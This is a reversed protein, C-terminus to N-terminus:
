CSAPWSKKATTINKNKLMYHIHYTKLNNVAFIQCIMISIISPVACAAVSQNNFEVKSKQATVYTRYTGQTSCRLGIFVTTRYTKQIM